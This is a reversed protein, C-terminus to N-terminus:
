SLQRAKKNLYKLASWVFFLGILISPILTIGYTFFNREVEQPRGFNLVKITSQQERIALKNAATSQIMSNKLNLLAPINLGQEGGLMVMGDGTSQKSKNGLAKSYNGILVDIQEILTKNEEIREEANALYIGKLEKFYENGNIYEMIRKAAEQGLDAEKYYFTIKHNVYSSALVVNKIVQKISSEGKLDGLYELYKLDEELNSKANSEQVPAIDVKFKHIAELDIGLENFFATDKGKIKSQIEQVVGYLYDKSEFNPKVIIETKKLRTLIKGLGYGAGIGVIGLVALILINKKFYLFVRLFWTGIKNLGNGIMKFLQGLDIEDSSNQDNPLQQEAM